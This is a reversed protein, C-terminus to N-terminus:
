DNRQGIAMLVRMDGMSFPNSTSILNLGAENYAQQVDDTTFGAGEDESKEWDWQVLLGKDALLMALLAITEHYDPVFALSSSAVILDFRKGAQRCERVFAEDVVGVVTKVNSLDKEDLVSIMKAAPDIAIISAADTSLKETMLGTGCGFDLITLGETKLVDGLSHIAKDSYAIVAENSDWGSAMDDWSQSM